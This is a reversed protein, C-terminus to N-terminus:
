ERDASGDIKRGHAFLADGFDGTQAEVLGMVRGILDTPQGAVFAAEASREELLEDDASRSIHAFYQRGTAFPPDEAPNGEYSELIAIAITEEHGYGFLSGFRLNIRQDTRQGGCSDPAIARRLVLGGRSIFLAHFVFPYDESDRQQDNQGCPKGHHEYPKRPPPTEIRAPAM